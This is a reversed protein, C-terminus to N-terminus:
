KAGGNLNGGAGDGGDEKGVDCDLGSGAQFCPIILQGDTFKYWGAVQGLQNPFIMITGLDASATKKYERSVGGGQSILNILPQANKGVCTVDTKLLQRDSTLVLKQPSPISLSFTHSM